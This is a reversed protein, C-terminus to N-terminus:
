HNFDDEEAESFDGLEEDADGFEEDIDMSNKMLKTFLKGVSNLSEYLISQSTKIEHMANELESKQGDSDEGDTVKVRKSSTPSKPRSDETKNVNKKTKSNKPPVNGVDKNDTNNNELEVKLSLSAIKEDISKVQVLVDKYLAHLQKLDDQKQQFLKKYKEEYEKEIKKMDRSVRSQQYEKEIQGNNYPNDDRIKPQFKKKDKNGSRNNDNKNINKKVAQAYSKSKNNWFNDVDYKQRNNLKKNNNKMPCNKVLHGPMNCMNCLKTKSDCFRLEKNKINGKSFFINKKKAENMSEENAFYVYAYRLNKYNKPNKPIFCAKGKVQNVIDSLDKGTTGYPLGALKLVFQKRLKRKEDNLMIPIVRVTNENVHSAWKNDYFREISKKNQYTVYVTQYLGDIKRSVKEIDGYIGFADVIVDKKYYQHVDFVQITREKEDLITEDDPKKIEKHKSEITIKIQETQEQGQEDLTTEDVIIEEKLFKDFKEKDEFTCQLFKPGRKQLTFGAYSKQALIARFKRQLYLADHATQSLKEVHLWCRYKRVTSYILQQEVGEMHEPQDDSKDVEKEHSTSGEKEGNQSNQHNERNNGQNKQTNQAEHVHNGDEVREDNKKNKNKSKENPAKTTLIPKQFTTEDLGQEDHLAKNLKEEETQIQRGKPPKYTGKANRDFLADEDFELKNFVPYGQSDINGGGLVSEKKSTSRTSRNSKTNKSMKENIGTFLKYL